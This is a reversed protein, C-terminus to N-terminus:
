HSELYSEMLFGDPPTRAEEPILTAVTKAEFNTDWLVYRVKRRDLVQIVEQFQSTTNYNYILNSYRTPNTTSSFFYYIPCNPYVFMEEGPAVHANVFALGPADRSMAVSGVRTMVPHATLVGLFNLTALWAATIGLIQLAYHAYKKPSAQLLHICLVTLLPAGFVLHGIDKRHVESLWLAWGCLWCLVLEPALDKWRYRRPLIPLLAYLAMFWPLAAVFLFPTIVVVAVAIPWHFAGSVSAWRDWYQRLIGQAYPVANVASYHTSPWLVNAYVLSSLAGQSWFYALVLGVISLYGGVAWGM